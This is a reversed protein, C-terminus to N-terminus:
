IFLISSNIFKGLLNVINLIRHIGTKTTNWPLEEPKNSSFSVTGQFSAYTNTFVVGSNKNEIDKWTTLSTKDAAVVLRGNCYIYWGANEPEYKEKEKKEAIGAVIKVKVNGHIYSEKVPQIDEGNVLKVHNGIM